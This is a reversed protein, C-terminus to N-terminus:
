WSYVGGRAEFKAPVYGVSRLAQDLGVELIPESYAQKGDHNGFCRGTPDVMVYSDTMADNSEAVPSFGENALPAHRTIFGTFQAETILLPGVRDENQGEVRLVQFVKWREPRVARVLESLDEDVNLATIVSNLKVRVGAERCADALAVSRAVHDGTGRGLEAQVRESGSDVSLGVWDLSDACLELVRALHFGNTVLSTTMGREKAYRIFRVLGPHLTPEGGAFNLKEVGAAWLADIVRLADAQNLPRQLDPFEAFCFTCKSDCARNVHYNAALVGPIPRRAVHPLSDLGRPAGVQELLSLKRHKM